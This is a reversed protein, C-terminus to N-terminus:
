ILLGIRGSKGKHLFPLLFVNNLGQLGLSIALLLADVWATRDSESDAHLVLPRKKTPTVVEFEGPTPRLRVTCLCM